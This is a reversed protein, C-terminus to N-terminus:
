TRSVPSSNTLIRFDAFILALLLGYKWHMQFDPFVLVFMFSRSNHDSNHDLQLTDLLCLYVGLSSWFYPVLNLVHYARFCLLPLFCGQFLVRVGNLFIKRFPCVFALGTVLEASHCTNGALSVLLANVDEFM